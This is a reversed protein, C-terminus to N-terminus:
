RNVPPQTPEEYLAGVRRYEAVVIGRAVSAVVQDREVSEEFAQRFVYAPPFGDAKAAKPSSLPCRASIKASLRSM